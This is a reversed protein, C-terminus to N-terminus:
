EARLKRRLSLHTVFATACGPLFWPGYWTEWGASHFVVYAALAATLGAAFAVVGVHESVRTTKTPRLGGFAAEAALVSAAIGLVTGTLAVADSLRDEISALYLCVTLGFIGMAALRGKFKEAGLEVLTSAGFRLAGFTTIAMLMLRPSVASRAARGWLAMAIDPNLSPQYYGSSLTAACLAGVVLLGGGLPVLVGMVAIKLIEGPTYDPRAMRAALFLLPAAYAALQSGGTWLSELAPRGSGPLPDVGGIWGERVRIVAAVLVALALKNTFYALKASCAPGRTATFFIYVLLLPALGRAHLWGAAVSIFQAIWAVLYVVSCTRVIVAPIRGMSTEISEFLGAGSTQCAFAPGAFFVATLTLSALGLILAYVPLPYTMWLDGGHLLWFTFNLFLSALIAAAGKWSLASV